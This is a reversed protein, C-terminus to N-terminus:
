KSAGKLKDGERLWHGEGTETNGVLEFRDGCSTCAFRYRITGPVHGSDFASYLAREEETRRSAPEVERQLVGRDVEQAATQAAHVLDEPGRFVHSGLWACEECAVSDARGIARSSNWM